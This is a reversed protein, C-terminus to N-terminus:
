PGPTAEGGSALRCRQLSRSLAPSDLMRVTSLFNCDSSLSVNV